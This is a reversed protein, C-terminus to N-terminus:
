CGVLPLSVSSLLPATLPFKLALFFKPVPSGSPPPCRLLPPPSFPHSPLPKLIVSRAPSFWLWLPCVSPPGLSTEISFLLPIFPSPLSPRLFHLTITVIPISLGGTRFLPTCLGYGKQLSNFLATFSTPPPSLSLLFKSPCCHGHTSHFSFDPSDSSFLSFVSTNRPPPRCPAHATPFFFPSLGPHLFALACLFFFRLTVSKGSLWWPAKPFFSLRFFSLARSASAIRRDSFLGQDSRV